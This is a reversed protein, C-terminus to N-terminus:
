ETPLKLVGGEKGDSIKNVALPLNPGILSTQRGSTTIPTDSLRTGDEFILEVLQFWVMGGEFRDIDELKFHSLAPLDTIRFHPTSSHIVEDDEFFSCGTKYVLSRIGQDSHNVLYRVEEHEVIQIPHEEKTM